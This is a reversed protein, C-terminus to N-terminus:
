KQICKKKFISKDYKVAVIILNLKMGYIAYKQLKLIKPQKYKKIGNYQLVRLIHLFKLWLFMIYLVKSFKKADILKKSNIKLYYSFIWLNLELIIKNFHTALYLTKKWYEKSKKHFIIKVLHIQMWSVTKELMHLIYNMLTPNLPM